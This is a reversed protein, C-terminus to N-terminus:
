FDSHEGIFRQRGKLNNIVNGLGDHLSLIKELDFRGSVSVNMDVGRAKVVNVTGTYGVNMGKENNLRLSVRKIQAEIGQLAPSGDFKLHPGVSGSLTARGQEDISVAVGKAEMLIKTTMGKNRSYAIAIVKKIIINVEINIDDM